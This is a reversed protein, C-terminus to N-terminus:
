EYEAQDIECSPEGPLNADDYRELMAICDEGSMGSELVVVEPAADAAWFTVLFVFLKM